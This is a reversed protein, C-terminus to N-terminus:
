LGLDSYTAKTVISKIRDLERVIDRARDSTVGNLLENNLRNEQLNLIDILYNLEGVNLKNNNDHM